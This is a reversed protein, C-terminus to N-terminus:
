IWYHFEDTNTKTTSPSYRAALCCPPDNAVNVHVNGAPPCDTTRNEATLAAAVAAAAAPLLFFLPSDFAALAKLASFLRGMRASSSLLSQNQQETQTGILSIERDRKKSTQCNDEAHVAGVM